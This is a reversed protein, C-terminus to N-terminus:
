GSIQDHREIRQYKYLAMEWDAENDIDQVRESPLAIARVTGNWLSRNNLLLLTKFFYFAGADHFTPALDQSRASIANPERLHVNGQEDLEFARQIPFDFATAALVVDTERAKFLDYANTLDTSHLLPTTPYICCAWEPVTDQEKLQELVEILVESTTAYDDANKSSRFFPVEAGFSEAVAAIEEDDTSVIIRDFLQSNQACQIAYGIIPQGHFLRINKRPIRKSGGRAPIIAINM